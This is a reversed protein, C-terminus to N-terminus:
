SNTAPKPPEEDDNWFGLRQMTRVFCQNGGVSAGGIILGILIQSTLPSRMQYPVKGSESILPFIIGGLAFALMPITWRPFNPAAKKLIWILFNLAFLLAVPPTLDLLQTIDPM